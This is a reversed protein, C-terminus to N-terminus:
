FRLTAVLALGDRTPVMNVRAPVDWLQAAVFADAGAILHNFIIAATWDEVHLKRSRELGDDYRGIALGSRVVGTSNATFNGGVTDRRQRRIDRVDAASRRLMALAAMEVGAFLAGSSGRELRSQALGPFLASTLFARRPSLPPRLVVARRAPRRSTDQALAPPVSPPVTLRASDRQMSDPPVQAGLLSTASWAPVGAAWGPRAVIAAVALLLVRLFRMM